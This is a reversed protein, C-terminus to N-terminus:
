EDGKLLEITEEWIGYKTCKVWKQPNYVTEGGIFRLDREDSHECNKCDLDCDMELIGSERMMEFIVKSVKNWYYTTKKGIMEAKIVMRFLEESQPTCVGCLWQDLRILMWHFEDNIAYWREAYEEDSLEETDIKMLADIRIGISIADRKFGDTISEM